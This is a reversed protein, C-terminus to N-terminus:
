AGELTAESTASDLPFEVRSLEMFPVDHLHLLSFLTLRRLVRPDMQSVFRLRKKFPMRQSPRAQILEFKSLKAGHVKKKKGKSTTLTKAKRKRQAPSFPHFSQYLQSSTINQNLQIFCIGGLSM